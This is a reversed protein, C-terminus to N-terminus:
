IHLVSITIQRKAQVYDYCGDPRAVAVITKSLETLHKGVPDDLLLKGEEMLMMAAVSTLAKTQSDIRFITDERMPDRAEKDRWGVAESYVDRGDQQIKVVAGAIRGQDVYAQLLQTLRGLREASLSSAQVSQASAPASVGVVSGALASSVLM